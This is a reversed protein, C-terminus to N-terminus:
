SGISKKVKQAAQVEKELTQVEEIVNKLDASQRTNSVLQGHAKKYTRAAQAVQDALIETTKVRRLDEYILMMTAYDIRKSDNVVSMFTSQLYNTEYNSLAPKFKETAIMAVEDMLGEVLPNAKEIVDRLIEAQRHRIYLGGAARIVLGITGGVKTLPKAPSYSKNYAEIAKDMSTGLERTSEDLAATYEDPVLATLIRSYDQLIGLAADMRKGTENFVVELRYADEVEQWAKGSKGTDVGGRPGVTGYQYRSVSLLKNDRLLVGYSNALAGPLETYENSAKVFREVEKVQSTTLVACGTACVLSGVICLSLLLVKRSSEKMKVGRRVFINM